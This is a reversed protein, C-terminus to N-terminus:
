AERSCELMTFLGGAIPRAEVVRLGAQRALAEVDQNWVCGKGGFDRALTQATLDQYAGLLPQKSRSNELLLVRGGESAAKVVRGMERLAAVPDPYVCLSFTDVVSDFSNAAFGELRAVDREHFRVSFSGGGQGGLGLGEAKARAGRLMGPSLDIADLSEVRGGRQYFPLNLGTGVGCELVRGRARGVLQARAADLGLWKALPGGDLADYDTSYGDYDERLEEAAASSAPAAAASAVLGDGRRAPTSGMALFAGMIVGAASSLAGHRSVGARVSASAQLSSPSSASPPPPVPVPTKRPRGRKTKAPIADDAALRDAPAPEAPAAPGATAAEEARPKPPLVSYKLLRLSLGAQEIPVKREVKMRLGRTVDPNGSLLWATGGGAERKLFRGMAEWSEEAGESLRLDWPPNSVVLTPKHLPRHHANFSPPSDVCFTM